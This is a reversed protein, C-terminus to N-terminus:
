KGVPESASWVLTRPCLGMQSEKALVQDRCRGQSTQPGLYEGSVQWYESKDSLQKEIKEWGPNHTVSPGRLPSLHTLALPSPKSPVKLTRCAPCETQAERSDEIPLMEFQLSVIGNYGAISVTVSKRKKPELIVASPSQQWSILLHKSRPLFALFFRSPAKFLLSMVKGVFTWITMAITKRTTM